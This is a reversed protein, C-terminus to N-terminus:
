YFSLLVLLLVYPIGLSKSRGSCLAHTQNGTSSSHDWMDHPWIFLYISIKLFQDWLFLCFLLFCFSFLFVSRWQSVSNLRSSGLGVQRDHATERLNSASAWKGLVEQLFWALLLIVKKISHFNHTWWLEFWQWSIPKGSLETLLSDVQLAPSGPEIGPDPLNAPSHIPQGSWYEQAEATAWGTFFRGAIRSVQTPYIEQLLSLSGVGTYQGPSNWPSYLGHPQLSDSMVSCSECKNYM